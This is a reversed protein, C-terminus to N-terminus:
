DVDLFFPAPHKISLSGTNERVLLTATHGLQFPHTKAWRTRMFETPMRETVIVDSLRRNIRM